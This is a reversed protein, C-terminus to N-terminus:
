FVARELRALRQRAILLRMAYGGPNRPATKTKWARRAGDALLLASCHCSLFRAHQQRLTNWAFRCIAQARKIRPRVACQFQTTDRRQRRQHRRYFPSSRFGYKELKRQPVGIWQLEDNKGIPSGCNPNWLM